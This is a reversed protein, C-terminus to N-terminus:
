NLEHEIREDVNWSVQIFDFYTSKLHTKLKNRIKLQTISELILFDCNTM